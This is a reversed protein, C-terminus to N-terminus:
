HTRTPRKPNSQTQTQRQSREEELALKAVTRPNNRSKSSTSTPEDSAVEHVSSEQSDRSHHVEASVSVINVAKDIASKLAQSATTDVELSGLEASTFMPALIDLMAELHAHCSKSGRNKDQRLDALLYSPITQDNLKVENNTKLIESLVRHAEAPNKDVLTLINKILVQKDNGIGLKRLPKYREGIVKCLECQKRKQNEFSTQMAKIEKKEDDTLSHSQQFDNVLSHSHHTSPLQKGDYIAKLFDIKHDINCHTLARMAFQVHKVTASETETYCASLAHYAHEKALWPESNFVAQCKSITQHFKCSSRSHKKSFAKNKKNDNLISIAHGLLSKSTTSTSNKSQVLGRLTNLVQSSLSPTKSIIAQTSKLHNLAEQTNNEKLEMLCNQISILVEEKDTDSISTDQKTSRLTYKLSICFERKSKGHSQKPNSPEYNGLTDSLLQLKQDVSISKAIKDKIAHMRGVLRDGKTPNQSMEHADLLKQEFKGNGFVGTSFNYKNICTFLSTFQKEKAIKKAADFEHSALKLLIEKFATMQKNHSEPVYDLIIENLTALLEKKLALKKKGTDTKANTPIYSSLTHYVCEAPLTLFNIDNDYSQLADDDRENNEQNEFLSFFEDGLTSIISKDHISLPRIIHLSQLASDFLTDKDEITLQSLSKFFTSESGPKYGSEYSQRVQHTISESLSKELETRLTDIHKANIFAPEGHRGPSTLQERYKRIKLVNLAGRTSLEDIVTSPNTKTNIDLFYQKLRAIALTKTNIQNLLKERPKVQRKFSPDLDPNIPLVRTVASSDADCSISLLAVEEPLLHASKNLISQYRESTDPNNFKPGENNLFSEIYDRVKSADLLLVSKSLGEILAKSIKGQKLKVKLIDLVKVFSTRDMSLKEHKILESLLDIDINLKAEKSDCCLMIKDQLSEVDISNSKLTIPRRKAAIMKFPPTIKLRVGAEVKLGFIAGEAIQSGSSGRKFTLNEYLGPLARLKNAMIDVTTKIVDLEASLSLTLERHPNSILKCPSDFTMNSLKRVPMITTPSLSSSPRLKGGICDLIAQNNETLEPLTADKFKLLLTSPTNIFSHKSLDGSIEVSHISEPLSAFNCTVHYPCQALSELVLGLEEENKIESLNIRIDTNENGNSQKLISSLQKANGSVEVRSAHAFHLQTHKGLTINTLTVNPSKFEIKNSSFSTNKCTCDGHSEISASEGEFTCKDIKIESLYSKLRSESSSIVSNSLGIPNSSDVTFKKNANFNIKSITTTHKKSLAARLVLESDQISLNQLTCDGLSELTMNTSKIEKKQNQKGVLTLGLCEIGINNPEGDYNLHLLSLDLNSNTAIVKSNIIDSHLEIPSPQAEIDPAQTEDYIEIIANKFTVLSAMELESTELTFDANSQSTDKYSQDDADPGEEMADGDQMLPVIDPEGNTPQAEQPQDVDPDTTSGHESTHDEISDADYFNWEYQSTGDRIQKNGVLEIKIESPSRNMTPLYVVPEGLYVIGYHTVLKIDEKRGPPSLNSIVQAIVEDNEFEKLISMVAEYDNTEENQLLMENLIATLVAEYDNTEENQLLMKNLIATLYKIKEETSATQLDIREFTESNATSQRSATTTHDEVIQERMHRSSIAGPAEENIDGIDRKIDNILSTANGTILDRDPAMGMLEGVNDLFESRMTEKKIIEELGSQAVTLISRINEKYQKISEKLNKDDIKINKVEDLSNMMSSLTTEKIKKEKISNRLRNTIMVFRSPPFLARRLLDWDNPEITQKKIRIRKPPKQEEHLFDLAAELDDGELNLLKQKLSNKTTSDYSELEKCSSKFDVKIGKKFKKLSSKLHRCKKIIVDIDARLKVRREKAIIENRINESLAERLKIPM